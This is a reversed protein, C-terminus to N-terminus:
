PMRRVALLTIDDYQPAEGTHGALGSVIQEILGSASLVPSQLLALLRDSSFFTGDSSSAETVGDTYGLLTDGPELHTQQIKFGIDSHIGVAAGTAKLHQKVGGTPGIVFVPEHGGSIYTLSGTKPDLVGFFLTAFMALDGHNLAIYNNTLEVAQMADIDLVNASPGAADSGLRGSPLLSCTLALGNSATQGSFVRIMFLAAGVGKDCVDAVVLGISGGPLKFVDYFDGSVQRAPKFSAAIEWGPLQPIQAPLFNLQMQRGMELERDLMKSYADVKQFSAQLANEAKKRENIADSIQRYMQNFAGIVEGLEDRRKVSASYFEPTEGDESIAEGARILDKRLELIPTIVIPGLFLWTGVTVFLSIIVVLGAIRLFFAYLEQRVPTSDHRLILTYNDQFETPAYVVDFRKKDRSLRSSVSNDKFGSLLLEPREGFSGIEKGDSAYLLGGTVGPDHMLQQVKKFFVAGTANPNVFRKIVNVEAASVAKVQSLLEKERNKFSPIFILAEIVIVSIFIWLVIRRSLRSTPPRILRRLFAPM